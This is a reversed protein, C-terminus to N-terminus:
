VWRVQLKSIDYQRYQNLSVAYALLLSFLSFLSLFTAHFIPYSPIPHLKHTPTWFFPRLLFSMQVHSFICRQIIGRSKSFLLISSWNSSVDKNKYPSGVFKTSIPFSSWRLDDWNEGLWVWRAFARREVGVIKLIDFNGNKM